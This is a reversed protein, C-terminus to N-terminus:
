TTKDTINTQRCLKYNEYNDAFLKLKLNDRMMKYSAFRLCMHSMVGREKLMEAYDQELLSKQVFLMCRNKLRLADAYNWLFRKEKSRLGHALCLENFLHRGERDVLFQRALRRGVFFALITTLMFVLIYWFMSGSSSSGFNETFEEFFKKTHLIWIM